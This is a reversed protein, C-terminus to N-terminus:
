YTPLAITYYDITQTAGSSLAVSSFNMDAGALAVTGQIRPETTSLVGTDASGVHRYFTATGSAANVGSWVEGTNKTVIGAVAADALNIGTGSSANSITCLLTHAGGIDLAADASTPVTGGYIKVFGAALQDQLSGTTLMGNRLGTSVKLAM